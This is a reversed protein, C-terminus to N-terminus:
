GSWRPCRRSTGLKGVARCRSRRAEPATDGFRAVLPIVAKSRRAGRAARDHRDRVDAKDDELRPILSTVVKLNGRRGITGLARVAHM